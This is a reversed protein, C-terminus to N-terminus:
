GRIEDRRETQLTRWIKDPTAPMDIHGVGIADSVAGILAPLAGITGAEGAGKAGLPNTLCPVENYRIDLAPMQDARPVVYDAFTATTLQGSEADYVCHEMLAQGLGQAIGGHIQGDVILPNIVRGVDDIVVYRDIAVTGTQPDVEVECIHCGNPFTPPSNFEAKEDLGTEFGPLRDHRLASALEPLSINRQTGAVYFRGGDREVRFEVEANGAQLVQRTAIKGKAIVRDM